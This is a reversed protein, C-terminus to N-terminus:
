ATQSAIEHIALEIQRDAIVDGKILPVQLHNTLSTDDARSKQVAMALYSQAVAHPKSFARVQALTRRDDHSRYTASSHNDLCGSPLTNLSSSGSRKSPRRFRQKPEFTLVQARQREDLALRPEPAQQPPAGVVENGFRHRDLAAALREHGGDLLVVQFADDGLPLGVRVAAADVPLLDLVRGVSLGLPPVLQEISGPARNRYRRHIRGMEDTDAPSFRICDNSLRLSGTRRVTSIAVSAGLSSSCAASNRKEWDFRSRSNRFSTKPLASGSIPGSRLSTRSHRRAGSAVRHPVGCVRQELRREDRPVQASLGSSVPRGSSRRWSSARKM